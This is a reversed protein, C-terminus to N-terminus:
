RVERRMYYKLLSINTAEIEVFGGPSALERLPVEHHDYYFTHDAVERGIRVPLRKFSVNYNYVRFMGDKIEWKTGGEPGAPLNPGHENFLMERIGITLEQQIYYTEIIPQKTVSHKWHISFSNGPEIREQYLLQDDKAPDLIQLVTVTKVSSYLCGVFVVMIGILFFLIKYKRIYNIM